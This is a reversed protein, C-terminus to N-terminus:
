EFHWVAKFNCGRWMGSIAGVVHDLGQELVIVFACGCVVELCILESKEM